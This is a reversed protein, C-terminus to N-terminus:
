QIKIFTTDEVNGVYVYYENNIFVYKVIIFNVEKLNLNNLFSEDNVKEIFSIEFSCKRLNTSSSISKIWRIMDNLFNNRESLSSQNIFSLVEDNNLINIGYIDNFWSDKNSQVQEEINALNFQNRILLM